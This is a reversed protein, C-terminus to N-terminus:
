NVEHAIPAANIENDSHRSDSTENDSSYEEEEDEESDDSCSENFNDSNDSCCEDDSFTGVVFSEEPERIPTILTARRTLSTRRSTTPDTSKKLTLEDIMKNLKRVEKPDGGDDETIIKRTEILTALDEEDYAENIVTDFLRNVRASDLVSM